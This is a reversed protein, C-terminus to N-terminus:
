FWKKKKFYGICFGVVAISLIIVMPYAYPWAFEPMQLNMGYWGVILSLPLFIATIVTFVKMINNLDIDVESQYAERVQTVYDRLNLISHYHREAKSSFIRFYRLGGENLLGNENEQLEDLVNLLQEYHRKLPALRKRLAIIERVFNRKQSEILADEMESIEQELEDFFGVDFVTFKEFFTYLARDFALHTGEVEILIHRLKHLLEAKDSLFFISSKNQYVLATDHTPIIKHHPIHVRMFDYGDRNELLMHGSQDAPTFAHAGYGFKALAAEAEEARLFGLYTEEGTPKAETLDCAVAKGDSIEYLMHM